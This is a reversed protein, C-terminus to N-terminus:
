KHSRKAVNKGDFERIYNVLQWRQQVTLESKFSPMPKRGETMKWFIAGDSQKGFELTTFDGPVKELDGSKPGDGKGKKGHCSNCNKAYLQKGETISQENSKVPNSLKDASPPAIWKNVQNGQVIPVIFVTLIIIGILIFYTYKMKESSFITALMKHKNNNIM